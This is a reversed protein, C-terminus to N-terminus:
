DHLKLNKELDNLLIMKGKHLHIKASYKHQGKLKGILLRPNNNCTFYILSIKSRFNFLKRFIRVTIKRFITKFTNANSQFKTNSSFKNTNM